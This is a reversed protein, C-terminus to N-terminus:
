HHDSCLEPISEKKPFESIIVNQMFNIAGLGVVLEFSPIMSKFWLKQVLGIKKVFFVSFILLGLSTLSTCLKDFLEHFNPNM